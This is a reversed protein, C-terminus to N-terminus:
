EFEITSPPKPTVDYYVGAVDHCEKLIEGSIKELRTWNIIAPEATLFDHTNVARIAVLLPRNREKDINFLLRTIHQHKDLIKKQLRLLEILSPKFGGGSKTKINLTVVNGYERKNDRIGTARSKLTRVDIRDEDVNFFKASAKKIDDTVSDTKVENEIVAAFYQVAVNDLVEEVVKTAKKDIDLKLPTVEGVLRVALGPGPFPQRESITSPIGLMRAVQRVQPKVLTAIPEIVKYGYKQVTNIGIQELVNHQTKIGGDTEIVDPAITGQVLYECGEHKAAESLLQYFVERFSKRKEEADKLGTLANLFREKADVLKMPLNLPPSSLTKMVEEPEGLRMFSTDIFICVLNDGIAQHTLVACTASDVGGSCAVMAEEEAIVRRIAVRQKDIFSKPDFSMTM